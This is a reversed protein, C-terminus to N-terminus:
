AWHHLMNIKAIEENDLGCARLETEVSKVFHNADDRQEEPQNFYALFYDNLQGKAAYMDESMFRPLQFLFKWKTQEWKHFPKILDPAIELMLKGYYLETLAHIITHTTWGLVDLTVSESSAELVYSHNCSFNHSPWRVRDSLREVFITGIQDLRGGPLLQQSHYEEIM